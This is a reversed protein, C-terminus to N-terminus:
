QWVPGGLYDWLFRSVTPHALWDLYSSTGRPLSAIRQAQTRQPNGSTSYYINYYRIKSDSPESWALRYHGAISERVVSFGGPRAPATTWFNKQGKAQVVQASVSTGSVIVRLIESLEDSELGSHEESTLAYYWTGGGPSDSYSIKNSPEVWSGNARPKLTNTQSDNGYEADVGAGVEQWPGGTSSARWIHYRKIERAYLVEGNVEDIQGTAPNIWRRNTYKAPLWRLEVGGGTTKAAVLNTPPFPNYVVSWFIDTINAGSLFESHWSMKTGYALCLISAPIGCTEM